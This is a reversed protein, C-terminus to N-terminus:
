PELWERAADEDVYCGSIQLELWEALQKATKAIVRETRQYTPDGPDGEALREIESRTLMM